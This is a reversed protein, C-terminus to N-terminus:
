KKGLSVALMMWFVLALDNKLYPIDILGHFIVAVVFLLAGLALTSRRNKIGQWITTAFIIMMGLLGLLGLDVWFNLFINHPFNYHELNKDKNYKDWNDSFGNVGKGLIPNDSIEQWGTNWLSIRAVASKEGMFPLLVRYRLNPVAAVVGALLIGAALFGIIMKKNASLLVYVGAAIVLGLWAGRSLSLFLGAGGVLWAAMYWYKREDASRFKEVVDPILWALLPTVFLGFANAHAFFAIARKPENANGWWDQPLTFLTFYQVVALAGAAGVIVYAAIKFYQLVKEDNGAFYRMLVFLVIPQAYLVTWQAIKEANVGFAFLSIVSALGVLAIGILLPKGLEVIDARIKQWGANLSSRAIMLIGIGIVAFNALMLFNTPLGGVSFRWVYLPATLLLIAFLYPM